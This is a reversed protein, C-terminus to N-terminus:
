FRRILFVGCGVLVAGLLRQWTVAKQAYGLLGYHDLFLSMGIQGALILAIMAAAGLRPAAYVTVSVFFAGLLGGTWQWPVIKEPFPPLPVRAILLYVFLALTGVLFSTFAAVISNGAWSIQLQSNIGAQASMTTGAIVALLCLVIMDM